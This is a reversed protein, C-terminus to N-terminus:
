NEGYSVDMQVAVSSAAAAGQPMHSSAAVAGGDWVAAKSKKLYSDDVSVHVATRADTRQARFGNTNM